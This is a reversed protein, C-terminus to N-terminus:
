ELLVREIAVSIGLASLHDAEVVLENTGRRLVSPPITFSSEHWGEEVWQSRGISAGNLFLEMGNNATGMHVVTLRSATPTDCIELRVRGTKERLWSWARDEYTEWYAFDNSLALMDAPRRLDISGPLCEPIPTTPDLSPDRVYLLAGDSFRHRLAYDFFRDPGSRSIRRWKYWEEPRDGNGAFIPASPVFVADITVGKARLDILDEPRPLMPIVTAPTEAALEWPLTGGMMVMRRDVANRVVPVVEAANCLQDPACTPKAATLWAHEASAKAVEPAVLVIACAAYVAVRPGRAHLHRVRRKLWRVLVVVGLAALAWLPPVLYDLYWLAAGLTLQVVSFALSFLTVTVVVRKVPRGARSLHRGGAIALGVLVVNRGLELPNAALIDRVLRMSVMFKAVFTGPDRLVVERASPWAFVYWPDSPLYQTRHLLLSEGLYSPFTLGFRWKSWAVFGGLIVGSPVAVMAARRIGASWAVGLVCFPVLVALSYRHLVAITLAAGLGGAAAASKHASLMLVVIVFFLLSDATISLGSLAFYALENLTLLTAAFVFALVNSSLWRRLTFFFVATLAIYPTLSAAVLTVLPDRLVALHIAVRVQSAVFKHVSPWPMEGVHGARELVGLAGLPMLNTRFGEGALLHRAVILDYLADGRAPLWPLYTAKFACLAALVAMLAALWAGVTRRKRSGLSRLWAVLPPFSRM